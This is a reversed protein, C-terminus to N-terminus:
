YIRRGHVLQRVHSLNNYNVNVPVFWLPHKNTPTYILEEGFVTCPIFGKRVTDWKYYYAGTGIRTCCIIVSGDMPAEWIPKVVTESAM